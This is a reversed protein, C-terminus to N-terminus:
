GAAKVGAETGSYVVKGSKGFKQGEKEEDDMKDWQEKADEYFAKASKADEFYYISVYEELNTGSVSAVCGDIAKLALGTIADDAEIKVVVYDAEELNAVAKDPDSPVCAVLAVTLIAVLALVAVISLTKKM